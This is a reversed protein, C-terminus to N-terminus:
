SSAASQYVAAGVHRVFCDCWLFSRGRGTAAKTVAHQGSDPAERWFCAVVDMRCTM